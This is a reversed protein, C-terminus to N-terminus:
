AKQLAQDINDLYKYAMPNSEPLRVDVPVRPHRGYNLYFPTDQISEQFSNNIAFELVPLLTDWDDQRPNVFHRLMDELVRNMRETQSTSQPRFPISKCHDTGLAQLLAAAFKNTFKPGRDSVVTVPMGHSRFVNDKFLDATAEANDTDRCPALRVMKTLKDVAVFIATHGRETRPLHTIRDMTVCDWAGKPVPLPMLKGAPARQLGKNRQCVDCGKVHDRIDAAM